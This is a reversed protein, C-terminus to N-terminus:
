NLGSIDRRCEQAFAVMLDDSSGEIDQWLDADSRNPTMYLTVLRKIIADATKAVATSSQLLIRGRLAFIGVLNEHNITDEKMAHSYLRATEDLFKGYLEDRRAREEAIRASRFQARQTTWSTIITTIGGVMAGALASFASFYASDMHKRGHILMTGEENRITPTTALNQM